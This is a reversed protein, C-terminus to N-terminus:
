DAELQKILESAEFRKYGMAYLSEVNYSGLGRYISASFVLGLEFRAYVAESKETGCVIVRKTPSDVLFYVPKVFM